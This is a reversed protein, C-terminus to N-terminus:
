YSWGNLSCCVFNNLLENEVVLVVSIKLQGPSSIRFRCDVARASMAVEFLSALDEEPIGVLIEVVGNTQRATDDRGAGGGYLLEPRWATSM